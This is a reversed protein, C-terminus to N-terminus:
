LSFKRVHKHHRRTDPADHSADHTVAFSNALSAGPGFANRTKDRTLGPRPTDIVTGSERGTAAHWLGKCFDGVMPAGAYVGLGVGVAGATVMPIAKAATAAMLGAAGFGMGIGVAAVTLFLASYLGSKHASVDKLYGLIRGLAKM